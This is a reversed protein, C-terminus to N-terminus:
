AGSGASGIIMEVLRLLTCESQAPELDLEELGVLSAYLLEAYPGNAAGLQDLLERLYAIRRSDVRDLAKRVSKDEKAWARIAPEVPRGDNLEPPMQTAIAALSRLREAPDHIAAVDGIIADVARAEWYALLASRYAPVDAFHWYFSGKTTGLRRSLPEAKLASPGTACLASFGAILWDETTLRPRTM